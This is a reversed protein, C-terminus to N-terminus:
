IIEKTVEKHRIAIIGAPALLALSIVGWGYTIITAIIGVALLVIGVAITNKVVFTIVTSGIYMIFAFALGASLQDSSAKTAEYNAENQAQQQAQQPSGIPFSNSMTMLGGVMTKFFSLTIFLGITLLMGLICGILALTQYTRM